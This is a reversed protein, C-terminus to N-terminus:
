AALGNIFTELNDTTGDGIKRGRKSARWKDREPWIKVIAGPIETKVFEIRHKGGCWCEHSIMWENNLLLEKM